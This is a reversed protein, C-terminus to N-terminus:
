HQPNVKMGQGGGGVQEYIKVGLIQDEDVPMPCRM